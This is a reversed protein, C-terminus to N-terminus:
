DSLQRMPQAIPLYSGRRLARATLVGLLGIFGTILLLIVWTLATQGAPKEVGLWRVAATCAAAYSFSFAWSGHGFPVELYRPALRLQVMIMLVAYGALMLAVPDAQYGNIEFWANGAVVPPAVQIAMTPLLPLPLGPGTFLRLFLISGLVLWSVAGYGFLMLALSHFGLAACGGAALFGGAVTPLFYGPHWRSLDPENLVWQGTLWGGLLVTAIMAVFFVTEGLGQQYRSLAVGLMMPVIPILGLFPSFTPDTLEGNWSGSRHVSVTFPILTILWVAGAFVWLLDSPWRPIGELSSASSWCLALGCLGFPAGFLNAPLRRKAVANHTNPMGPRYSM